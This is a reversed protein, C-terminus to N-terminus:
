EGQAAHPAGGAPPTLRILCPALVLAVRVARNATAANASGFWALGSVLLASALMKYRTTTSNM